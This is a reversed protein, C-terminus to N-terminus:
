EESKKKAKKEPLPEYIQKDNIFFEKPLYAESFKEQYANYWLVKYLTEATKLKLKGSKPNFASKKDNLKIGSLNFAPSTHTSTTKTTSRFDQIANRFKKRKELKYTKFFVLKGYEYGAVKYKETEEILTQQEKEVKEDERHFKLKSFSILMEHYVFNEEFIMRHQNFYVCLYKVNDAIQDGEFDNSFLKKKKEIHIEKICMLPPIQNIYSDIAGDPQFALPHTKLTVIDGINYNNKSM